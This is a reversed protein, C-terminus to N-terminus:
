FDMLSVSIDVKAAFQLPKKAAKDQRCCQIRAYCTIM